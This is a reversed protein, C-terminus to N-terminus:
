YILMSAQGSQEEYAHKLQKLQQLGDDGSALVCVTGGSGGGTIKAGLLSPYHGSRVMAVLQDTAPHGLGCQNYSEHAQYMVEGMLNLSRNRQSENDPLSAILQEFLAVRHNELVPHAACARVAYRTAPSVKSLADPVKLGSDLFVEGHMHEPLHLHYRNLWHSPEIEGLHEPEPLGAQSALARVLALGMFASTRVQGYDAGTVAHRIGSDVGVFHLDPPLEIPEELQDPRCVIPLLHRPKGHQSALQDMLGCPAGVILNEVMQALRALETGQMEISAALVLARMTAVELAASSSVGKGWPVESRVSIDAGNLPLGKYQHLVVFCGIVYSLWEGGQRQKFITRVGEVTLQGNTELADATIEQYNFAGNPFFTVARFLGDPRLNIKVTTRAEIPMQLVRSGSYDAIGGMVDLRGPASGGYAIGSAHLDPPLQTPQAVMEAPLNISPPTWTWHM